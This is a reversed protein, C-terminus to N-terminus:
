EALEIKVETTIKRWTDMEGALWTKAEALSKNPVSNFNQKKFAEIVAPAELAQLM